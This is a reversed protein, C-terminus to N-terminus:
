VRFPKPFIHYPMLEGGGMWVCVCVCVCVCVRAGMEPKGSWSQPVMRVETLRCVSAKRPLFLHLSSSPVFRSGSDSSQLIGPGSSYNM